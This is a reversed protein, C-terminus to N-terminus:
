KNEMDKDIERLVKEQHYDELYSLGNELGEETIEGGTYLYRLANGYMLDVGGEILQKKTMEEQISSKIVKLKHLVDESLRIYEETQIRM